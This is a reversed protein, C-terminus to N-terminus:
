TRGAKRLFESIVEQDRRLRENEEQLARIQREYESELPRVSTADLGIRHLTWWVPAGSGCLRMFQLEKECSFNASGHTVIRSFQGPDMDLYGAIQKDTVEGTREELRQIMWRYVAPRNPLRSIEAM